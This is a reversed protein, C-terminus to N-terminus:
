KEAVLKARRRELNTKLASKRSNESRSIFRINGLEYHISPGIRDITPIGGAARIIQIVEWQELVFDYFEQRTMRLEVGADLYRRNTQSTWGPHSGNVTRNNLDGWRSTTFGKATAAYAKRRESEHASGNRRTAARKAYTAWWIAHHAKKCVKCWSERGDKGKRSRHFEEM